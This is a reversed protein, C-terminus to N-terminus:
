RPINAEAEALAARYRDEAAYVRRRDLLTSEGVQVRESEYELTIALLRLLVPARNRLGLALKFDNFPINWRVGFQTPAREPDDWPGPTAKAELALLREIEQLVVENSM